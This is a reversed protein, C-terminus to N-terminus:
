RDASRGMGARAIMEHAFKWCTWPRFTGEAFLKAEKDESDAAERAMLRIQAIEELEAQTLKRAIERM